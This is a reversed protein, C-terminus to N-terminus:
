KRRTHQKTHQSIWVEQNNSNNENVTTASSSCLHYVLPTYVKYDLSPFGFHPFSVFGVTSVGVWSILPLFVFLCEFFLHIMWRFATDTHYPPLFGDGEHTITCNECMVIGRCYVGRLQQVIGESTDALKTPNTLRRSRSNKM